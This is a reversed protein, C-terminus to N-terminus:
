IPCYLVDIWTWRVIYECNVDSLRSICGFGLFRCSGCCRGFALCKLFHWIGSNSAYFTLM